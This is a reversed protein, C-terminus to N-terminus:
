SALRASKAIAEAGVVGRPFFALRPATYTILYLEGHARRGL